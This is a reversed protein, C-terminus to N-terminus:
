GITWAPPCDLLCALVGSRELVCANGILCRTKTRRMAHQPRRRHPRARLSVTSGREHVIPQMVRLRSPLARCMRAEREGATGRRHLCPLARPVPTLRRSRDGTSASDRGSRARRRARVGDGVVAPSGAHRRVRDAQLNSPRGPAHRASIRAGGARSRGCRRVREIPVFWSVARLWCSVAPLQRSSAVCHM